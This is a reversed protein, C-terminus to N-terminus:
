AERGAARKKGNAPAMDARIGAWFIRFSADLWCRLPTAPGITWLLVTGFLSQQFLRAMEAPDCDRRIENRQRGLEFIQALLARGQELNHAMLRRVQDNSLIARLLSRALRQSQAPHKPLAHYLRHLVDRVSERGGRATKLAGMIKGRQVEALAGLIHEKSPFYNFFTGKGLDATETIQEVTTAAFGRQRFLRLAALLLRQRTEARRRERRTPHLRGPLEQATL